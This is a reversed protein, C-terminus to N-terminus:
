RSMKSAAQSVELLFESTAKEASEWTFQAAWTKAAEGLFRRKDVDLCLSELAAALDEACGEERNDVLIGTAGDNISDLTGDTWSPTSANTMRIQSCMSAIGSLTSACGRM